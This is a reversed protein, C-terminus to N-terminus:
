RKFSRLANEVSDFTDLRGLVNTLDLAERCTDGLNTLKPRDLVARREGCSNLLAEIGRSDLYAVDRCDVVVRGQRQEATMKLKGLFEDVQETTLPGHPVLVAVTGHIQVDIKM